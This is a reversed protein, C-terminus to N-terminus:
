INKYNMTSTPYNPEMESTFRQEGWQSNYEYRLGATLHLRDIITYTGQGFLAFGDSDIDTNRYTNNSMGPM